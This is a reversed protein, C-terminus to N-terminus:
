SGASVAPRPPVRGRRNLSQFDAGGFCFVARRGCSYHRVPRHSAAPYQSCQPMSLWHERARVEGLRAHVSSIASDSHVAMAPSRPGAHRRALDPPLGIQRHLMSINCRCVRHTLPPRTTRLGSDTPRPTVHRGCDSPFARDVWSDNVPARSERSPSRSCSAVLDTREAASWEPHCAHPQARPPPPAAHRTPNL